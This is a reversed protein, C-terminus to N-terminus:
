ILPTAVKRRKLASVIRNRGSDKAQYLAKDAKGYLLDFDFQHQDSTISAYGVSATLYESTSSECHLIKAEEICKRISEARQKTESHHTGIMLLMFEEGGIRCFTEKDSHVHANLIKGITRLAADGETHGYVTNYLGFHDLDVLILGFTVEHETAFAGQDDCNLDDLVQSLMRRNGLRTLPDLKSIIDLQENARELEQTRKSVEQELTENLKKLEEQAMTRQLVEALSSAFIRIVERLQSTLPSRTLLNDAAIFAIPEGTNTTLMTMATWGVGVINFDHYIPVSEEFAVQNPCARAAAVIDREVLESRYYSEDVIDGKIDTGWTGQMYSCNKDTLFVALRDIGLHQIAFSVASKCVESVSDCRSLEVMSSHLMRINQEQRKRIYIQSLLSGFSELMQKQYNTIPSRHIYNDMAIWGVPKDGERLILMGNWGQGVVKGETYLPAKEIIVLNIHNDSLAEIYEAELQHLDYQTHHESNTKGREDTGYTGSFCRKKMDLLMFIARDFGLRDRVAEVSAKYLADLSDPNSLELAVQHVLKMNEVFLERLKIEDLYQAERTDRYKIELAANKEARICQWRAAALQLVDLDQDFTQNIQQANCNQVILYTRCAPANDLMMILSEGGLVEMHEWKCTNISMPLVGDATDFQSVWPWFTSPYKDLSTLEGCCFLPLSDGEPTPETFVGIGKPALVEVLYGFLSEALLRHDRTASIQKAFAKVPM